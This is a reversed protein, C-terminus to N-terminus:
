RTAAKKQTEQEYLQELRDIIREAIETFKKAEAENGQERALRAKRFAVAAMDIDTKHRDIFSSSELWPKM